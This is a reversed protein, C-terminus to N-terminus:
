PKKEQKPALTIKLRPVGSANTREVTTAIRDKPIAATETLFTAAAQARDRAARLNKTRNGATKPFSTITVTFRPERSFIEGAQRLTKKMEETLVTEGATFIIDPLFPTTSVRLHVPIGLDSGIMRELMRIQVENLPSDTQIQLDIPYEARQSNIGFTYESVTAPAVVANIKKMEDTMLRLTELRTDQVIEVPQRPKVAVPVLTPKIPEDKLGGPQVKFQELHFTVPRGLDKGMNREAEAIAKESLYTTTSIVANVELKGDDGVQQTFSAVRSVGKKDFEERLTEQVLKQLRLQSISEHLTYVLPISIIALVSALYVIRKRLSSGGLYSDITPTFGYYFLVACTAFIIAVFNTFFLFFGGLFIRLSGIGIGFGAVSLPPIVATAIAV